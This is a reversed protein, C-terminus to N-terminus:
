QLEALIRAMAEQDFTKTAESDNWVTKAAARFTADLEPTTDIITVGADQMAQDFKAVDDLLYQVSLESYKAAADRIIQQQEATLTEMVKSSAFLSAGSFAHNTRTMYPQFEHFGFAYTINPGNDQGDIVKQQLASAVETISMATPQCGLEEFFKIYMPNQPVRMKMNEFVAPNDIPAKSTTMWRFDSYAWGLSELGYGAMITKVKEGIWGNYYLERVADMDPFLYPLAVFGMEPLAAAYAIDASWAMFLTGNMVAETIERDGGHVGAFDNVLEITGNSKELVEAKM